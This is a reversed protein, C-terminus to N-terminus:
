YYYKEGKEFPWPADYRSLITELTEIEEKIDALNLFMIFDYKFKLRLKLLLLRQRIQRYTRM